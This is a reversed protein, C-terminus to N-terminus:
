ATEPTRSGSVDLEEVSRLMPLMSARDVTKMLVRLRSLRISRQGNKQVKGAENWPTAGPGNYVEIPLGTPTIQLVVLHKSEGYMAVSSNGQTAKIQVFRGDSCTADHCEASSPLLTLGYMWRAWAEGISGVMHGDPTFSRGPFLEELRQVHSYIQQLRDGVERMREMELDLQQTQEPRM